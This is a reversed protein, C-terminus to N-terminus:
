TTSLIITPSKAARSGISIAFFQFHIDPSHEFKKLKNNAQLLLCPIRSFETTILTFNSTNIIGMRIWSAVLKVCKKEQNSEDLM